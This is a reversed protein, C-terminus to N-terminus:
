VWILAIPVRPAIDLPASRNAAARNSKAVAQVPSLPSAGLGAAETSGPVEVEANGVVGGTVLGLLPILRRTTTSALPFMTVISGSPELEECTVL